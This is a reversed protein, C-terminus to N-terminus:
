FVPREVFEVFEVFGTIRLNDGTKHALLEIHLRIASPLSRQTNNEKSVNTEIWASSLLIM